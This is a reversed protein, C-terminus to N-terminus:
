SSRAWRSSMRGFRMMTGTDACNSRYQWASFFKGNLLYRKLQQAWSGPSAYWCYRMASGPTYGFAAFQAGCSWVFNQSVPKDKPDPISLNSSAWIAPPPNLPPYQPFPDCHLICPKFIQYFKETLGRRGELLQSKLIIFYHQSKYWYVAFM